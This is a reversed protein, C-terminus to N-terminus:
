CRPPPATTAGPVVGPPLTTAEFDTITLDAQLTAHVPPPAVLLSALLAAAAGLPATLRFVSGGPNSLASEGILDPTPSM